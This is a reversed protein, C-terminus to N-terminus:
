NRNLAIWGLPVRIRALQNFISCKSRNQVTQENKSWDTLHRAGNTGLDLDSVFLALVDVSM